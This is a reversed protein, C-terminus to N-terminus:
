DGPLGRSNKQGRRNGLVHRRQKMRSVIETQKFTVVMKIRELIHVKFSKLEKITM